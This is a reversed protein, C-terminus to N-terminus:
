APAPQQKCRPGLPHCAALGLARRCGGSLCCRPLSCTMALHRGCWPQRGSRCRCVSLLSSSISCPTWEMHPSCDLLRSAAAAPQVASAPHLLLTARRQGRYHHCPRCLPRQRGAPRLIASGSWHPVPQQQQHPHPGTQNIGRRCRQKCICRRRGLSIHHPWAPRPALGHRSSRIHTGAPGQLAGAKSRGRRSSGCPFHPAARWAQKTFALGWSQSAQFISTNATHQHRVTLLLAQRNPCGM